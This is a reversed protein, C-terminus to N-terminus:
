TKSEETRRITKESGNSEGSSTQNNSCYEKSINGQLRYFTNPNKRPDTSAYILDYVGRTVFITVEEEESNTVVLEILDSFHLVPKMGYDGNHVGELGESSELLLDEMSTCMQIKNTSTDSILVIGTKTIWISGDCEGVVALVHLLLM